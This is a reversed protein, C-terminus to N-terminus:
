QMPQSLLQASKNLPITEAIQTGPDSFEVLNPARFNQKDRIQVGFHAGRRETRLPELLWDTGVQVKPDRDPFNLGPEQRIDRRDASIEADSRLQHRFVYLTQSVGLLLQYVQGPM